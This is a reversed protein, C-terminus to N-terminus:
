FSFREPFLGIWSYPFIAVNAGKPEDQSWRHPKLRVEYEHLFRGVGVRVGRRAHREGIVMRRLAVAIQRIKPSMDWAFKTIFLITFPYNRLFIFNEPDHPLFIENLKYLKSFERQDM